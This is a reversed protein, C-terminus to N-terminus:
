VLGAPTTISQQYKGPVSIIYGLGYSILVIHWIKNMILLASHGAIVAHDNGSVASVVLGAMDREAVQGHYNDINPM